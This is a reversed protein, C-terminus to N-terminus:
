KSMSYFKSAVYEFATAFHQLSIEPMKVKKPLELDDDIFLFQNVTSTHVNYEVNGYAELQNKWKQVIKALLGLPIGKILADLDLSLQHTLPIRYKHLTHQPAKSRKTDDRAIRQTLYTWLSKIHKLLLQKDKDKSSSLNFYRYESRKM